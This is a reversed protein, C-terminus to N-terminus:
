TPIIVSSSVPEESARVSQLHKILSEQVRRKGGISDEYFLTRFGSVDFPLKDRTKDCLLITPKNLAHAYGVEYFVNPNNPTIEAIVVSADQISQIIEDLVSGSTFTEDGRVAQYGFESCVPQIVEEYLTNFSETFQMVVFAKPAEEAVLFNRVEIPEPSQLLLGLQSRSIQAQASSVKVGNVFLSVNSGLVLIM